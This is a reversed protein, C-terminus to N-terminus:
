RGRFLKRMLVTIDAVDKVADTIAALFTENHNLDVALEVLMEFIQASPKPFLSLALTEAIKFNVAFVAYNHQITGGIKYPYVGGFFENVLYNELTVAYKKLFKKYAKADFDANFNFDVHRIYKQAAGDRIKELVTSILTKFEQPQFNVSDILIPIQGLFFEEATYIKNLTAIVNLDGRKLIEELQRLYFGLVILRQDLTLRRQQLISIATFQIETFHLIVEPPVNSESVFIQRNAWAPLNIESTEFEIRSKSNLILRAALPCTLTLSREIVGGFKYLQRPYSRCLQSINEEGRQLQISCLGAANLFPCAGGEQKIFYEGDDFDIHRTLEHQSTELQLYKEYTEADVEIKWNRRCCNAPCNKGDCQFKAVYKPQLYVYM